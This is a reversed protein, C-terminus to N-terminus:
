IYGIVCKNWESDRLFKDSTLDFNMKQENEKLKSCFSPTQFPM